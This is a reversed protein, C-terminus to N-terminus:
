IHKSSGFALIKLIEVYKHIAIYLEETSTLFPESPCCTRTVKWGYILLTQLHCREGKQLCTQSQMILIGFCKPLQLVFYVFLCNDEVQFYPMNAHHHVAADVREHVYKQLPNGLFKLLVLYLKLQLIDCYIDQLIM